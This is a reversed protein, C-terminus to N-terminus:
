APFFPNHKKELGVTTLPGHGPCVLTADPLTLIKERNNRLADEYSIGGGGMSGAFLADGVVAVPQPLGDIVYTIGGKSHGSTLRTNIKLAGEEFRKGEPFPEAGAMAEREGVYAAAATLKKLLDLDAIHDPHTHTLLILGIKLNEKRAFDTIQRADTGTDFVVARRSSPDWVLYANVTMDQYAMNFQRVHPDVSDLKPHWEGKALRVLADPRLNLPHALARLAAENVAGRRLSELDAPSVGARACLDADSLKLGRQAKGLIDIFGDELPIM